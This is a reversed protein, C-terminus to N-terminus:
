YNDLLFRLFNELREPISANLTKPLEDKRDKCIFKDDVLRGSLYKEVYIQGAPFNFRIRFTFIEEACTHIAPEVRFARLETEYERSITLYKEIKANWADIREKIKLQEKRVHLLQELEECQEFTSSNEIITKIIQFQLM